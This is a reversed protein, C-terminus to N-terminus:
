DIRYFVLDANGQVHDEFEGGTVTVGLAPDFSDASTSRYVTHSKKGNAITFVVKDGQKTAQVMTGNEQGNGLGLIALLGAAVVFPILGAAALWRKPTFLAPLPSPNRGTDLAAQLIRGRADESISEETAPAQKWAAVADDLMRDGRIKRQKATKFREM